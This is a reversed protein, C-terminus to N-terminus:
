KAAPTRATKPAAALPRMAALVAQAKRLNSYTIDSWYLSVTARALNRAGPEPTGLEDGEGQSLGCLSSGSLPRVDVIRPAPLGQTVFSDRLVRKLLSSQETCDFGMQAVQVVSVLTAPQSLEVLPQKEALPASTACAALLFLLYGVAAAYATIVIAAVIKQWRTRRRAAARLEAWGKAYKGM